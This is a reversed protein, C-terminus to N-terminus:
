LDPHSGASNPLDTSNSNGTGVHIEVVLHEDTQINKSTYIDYNNTYGSANTIKFNQKVDWDSNILGGIFIDGGANIRYASPLAFIMYKGGTCNFEMQFDMLEGNITDIFQNNALQLIADSTFIMQSSAGYYMKPLFKLTAQSQLQEGNTGTVTLVWTTNSTLGNYSIGSEEDTYVNLNQGTVQTIGPTISGVTAYSNSPCVLTQSTVYAPNTVSWAFKVTSVSSGVEAYGNAPSTIVLNSSLTPSEYLLYDLAAQVTPYKTHGDLIVNSAKINLTPSEQGLIIQQLDESLDNWTIKTEGGPNTNQYTNNVIYSQMGTFDGFGMPNYGTNIQGLVVGSTKNMRIISKDEYNFVVIDCVGTNDQRCGISFPSNGVPFSEQSLDAGNIKTVSKENYNAVWVNDDDDCCIGRPNSGVTVDAVKIMNSIKTVVGSVSCAVYINGESDCCIGDPGSAVAIKQDYLTVGKWIISVTNDTYNAVWINGEIDCCIGRPGVGVPFVETVQDGEIKVVTNSSYNTVFIPYSGNSNPIIGECVGYPTTGNTYIDVMRENNYFRSVTNDEQNTVYVNVKDKSVAIGWPSTGTEVKVEQADNTYKYLGRLASDSTTNNAAAWISRLYAM